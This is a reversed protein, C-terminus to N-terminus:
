LRCNDVNCFLLKACASWIYTFEVNVVIESPLSAVNHVRKSLAVQNPQVNWETWFIQHLIHPHTPTTCYQQNYRQVAFLMLCCKINMKFELYFILFTFYPPNMTKGCRMDVKFHFINKIYIKWTVIFHTLPM